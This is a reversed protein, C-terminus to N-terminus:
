RSLSEHLRRLQRAFASVTGIGACDGVLYLPIETGMLMEALERDPVTGLALIVTDAPLLKGKGNREVIVESELIETLKTNTLVKVGKSNLRLLTWRRNEPGMDPAIDELMEIITVDQKRQALFEAVECGVKGGGIVM